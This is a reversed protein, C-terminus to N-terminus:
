KESLVIPATFETNQPYEQIAVVPGQVILSVASSLASNANANTHIAKVKYYLNNGGILVTTSTTNHFKTFTGNKSTSYYIDYSKAGVSAWKLRVVDYGYEETMATDLTLTVVPRALDCTRQFWGTLASNANTNSHIAKVKYYYKVGAVGNKHTHTLNKTTMLVKFSGAKGTTSYWVQYKSAGSVANWSIVNKGTSANNTVKLGTPKALDCTRQYWGTLASNADANSHIAKVKYYYKTGAIGGKHTHTLNKTTVLWKFSGTKGTTSYYVQYKAAGSVANWSIVNKGTSANNAVKLGTPRPLDCVRNVKNSPESESGGSMAIIYYYNKQGATAATDTYTLSSITAIAQYAGNASTSRYVKYATAGEVASWTLRIKGDSARNSSTIKPSPLDVETSITYYFAPSLESWEGHQYKTIDNSMTLLRFYYYGEGYNKFADSRVGLTTGGLWGSRIREMQEINATKIKSFYIEYKFGLVYEDTPFDAVCYARYVGDSPTLSLNTCKQPLIETPKVYTWTDSIATDSDSYTTGDGKATITFYYTGSELYQDLLWTFEDLCRWGNEDIASATTEAYAIRSGDEQRYVAFYYRIDDPYQPNVKWVFSGPVSKITTVYIGLTEDFCLSKGLGWTLDTPTDLKILGTNENDEGLAPIVSGKELVKECRKCVQDGTYGAQTQTAAVANRLEPNHGLAAVTRTEAKGCGSCSRQETGTATCTPAQTRTWSTFSHEHETEPTYEMWTLTGGYNLQVDETWTTNGAPYYANATVAYFAREDMLPADGQFYIDKLISADRFAYSGISSVTDPITISKLSDCNYFVSDQITVVSSLFVSELNTCNKFVETKLIAVNKPITVSTLSTCGSFAYGEIVTVEDGFDISTLGKCGGFAYSGITVLSDPITVQTLSPCDAFADSGITVIGEPITVSSLNDCYRFARYNVKSMNKSLVVKELADCDYFAYEGLSLVSEPLTVNLLKDCNYFAYDGITSVGNKINISSAGCGRFAEYGISEVNGPITLNELGSCNQFAYSDIKTVGRGISVNALGACGGFAYQGITTVSDPITVQALLPCDAFSDNSITVIGEPITVSTLKNCYRFTRYGTTSLNKSLTVTQLADCHCFAYEGLSTVSDPLTVTRLSDCGYFAENGITAVGSTISVTSMTRCNKFAYNGISTVNSPITISRLSSCGEFASGGITTVSTGITASVLGSCGSFAGGGIDTVTNPIAVRVLNSCGQFASSGITTIGSPLSVTTMNSCNIFANNGISTVSNGVKVTIIQSRYNYWPADPSYYYYDAMRGTGSITLTGSADLVWTLSGGCTGSAIDSVAMATGDNTTSVTEMVIEPEPIVETASEELFTDEPPVTTPSSLPAEAAATEEALVVPVETALVTVPICGLTLVLAMLGSLIRKTSM